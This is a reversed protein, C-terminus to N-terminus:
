VDFHCFIWSPKWANKRHDCSPRHRACSCKCLHIPSIWRAAENTETQNGQLHSSCRSCHISDTLFWSVVDGSVEWQLVVWLTRLPQVILATHTNFLALSVTFGGVEISLSHPPLSSLLLPLSKMAEYEKKWTGANGGGRGGMRGTLAVLCGQGKRGAAKRNNGPRGTQACFSGLFLTNIRGMIHALHMSRLSSACHIRQCM